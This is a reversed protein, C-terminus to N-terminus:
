FDALEDTYEILDHVAAAFREFEWLLGRATGESITQENEKAAMVGEVIAEMISTHEILNGRIKELKRREDDGILTKALREEGSDKASQNLPISGKFKSM